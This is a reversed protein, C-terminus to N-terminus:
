EIGKYIHFEQVLLNQYIPSNKFENRALKRDVSPSELTQINTALQKVPVPPSELLPADLISIVESVRELQTLEDRLRALTTLTKDSFLDGKPTYIMLLYDYDGYRAKILRAYKLDIDTELILTEASADLKFDTAQYGFIVFIALLCLIVLGPRELIVKDYFRILLSHHKPM